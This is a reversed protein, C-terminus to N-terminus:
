FNPSGTRRVCVGISFRCLLRCIINNSSDDEQENRVSGKVKKIVLLSLDGLRNQEAYGVRKARNMTRESRM